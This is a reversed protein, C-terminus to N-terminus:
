WQLFKRFLGTPWGACVRTSKISCQYVRWGGGGGARWWILGHYDSVPYVLDPEKFDPRFSAPPHHLIHHPSHYIYFMREKNRKSFKVSPGGPTQWGALCDLFLRWEEGKVGTRGGKRPRAQHDALVSAPLSAPLPGLLRSPDLSTLSYRPWALLSHAPWGVSEWQLDACLSRCVSPPLTVSALVSTLVDGPTMWGVLKRM